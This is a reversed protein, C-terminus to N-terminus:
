KKTFFPLQTRAALLMKSVHLRRQKELRYAMVGAAVEVSPVVLVDAGADPTGDLGIVSVPTSPTALAVEVGTHDLLTRIKGHFNGAVVVDGVRLTGRDVIVNVMPGWGRDVRAEM